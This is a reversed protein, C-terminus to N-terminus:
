IAILLCALKLGNTWITDKKHGLNKFKKSSLKYDFKYTLFTFTFKALTQYLSSLVEHYTFYELLYICNNQIM